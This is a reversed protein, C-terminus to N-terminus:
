NSTTTLEVKIAFVPYFHIHVKRSHALMAVLAHVALLLGGPLYLLPFAYSRQRLFLPREPFSLCFHLFLAPQLILALVNLWYITWDFLNLKGTYSFTYLVFSTLCFLYFHVSKPASWRRVLIFMGILLYLLGVLELYHRVSTSNSQPAIVLTAQFKKGHRVLDYTVQSWVGSRFVERIAEVTTKVPYGGIAGLRDGERIGAREGPGNHTVIWATVGEASDVWSVGDDPLQYRSRQQFNLVSFVAIGLSLLALLVTTFRFPFGKTTM